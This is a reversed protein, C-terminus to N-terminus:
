KLVVGIYEALEHAAADHHVSAAKNQDGEAATDAKEAHQRILKPLELDRTAQWAHQSLAYAHENAANWVTTHRRARTAELHALGAKQHAEMAQKIKVHM